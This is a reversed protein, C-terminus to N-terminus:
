ASPEAVVSAPSPLDLRGLVAPIGPGEGVAAASAADPRSGGRSLVVVGGGTQNAVIMRDAALAFHRPWTGGSDLETLYRLAGDDAVEFEAMVDAGRVSLVLRRGALVLHAPQVRQGSRLGTACAPLVQVPMATGVADDWRLVRVTADLEGVVYLAGAPGFVLQRPGTGAPLRAAIGDAVLRGDPAVRYRRLEDTGLDVVLVWRGSPVFAAFHAHPGEQRAPEAGTGHHGLVSTPEDRELAIPEFGGDPELLVTAISGSDYNCVYLARGAPDVLLHCPGAGGSSLMGLPDLRGGAGITWASIRGRPAIENAAYLVPRHPHRALFSPAPTVAALLADVPSGDPAFRIRWIGEGQGVPTGAGAAPYTGVWYTTTESM